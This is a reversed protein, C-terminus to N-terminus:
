TPCPALRWLVVCGQKRMWALSVLVHHPRKTRMVVHALRVRKSYTRVVLTPTVQLFGVHPLQLSHAQLRELACRQVVM